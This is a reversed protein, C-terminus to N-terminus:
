KELIPGPFLISEASKHDYIIHKYVNQYLVEIQDESGEFFLINALHSM